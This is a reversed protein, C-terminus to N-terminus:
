GFLFCWIRRVTGVIFTIKKFYKCKFNKNLQGQGQIRKKTKIIGSIKDIRSGFEWCVPHQCMPITGVDSVLDFSLDRIGTTYTFGNIFEDAVSSETGYYYWCDKCFKLKKEINM